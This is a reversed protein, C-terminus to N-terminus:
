KEAGCEIRWVRGAQAGDLCVATLARGWVCGSDLSLYNEHRMFGLSSWHGFVIRWNKCQMHPHAFWPLLAPPQSGPAGKATFNLGGRRTCFRMRTLANTIFRAREWKHKVSQWRAPHRGYMRRLFNKWEAGRLLSEVEAALHAVQKRRWGPYIGAHVMLTKLRSDFHALPRRRLWDLLEDRDPASLINQMTDAARMKRAGTSVALLNLDHNGLVCVASEGLSRVLRLTELSHPGRNVMDGSLWLSDRAPAFDVSELMRELPAVCGQVDGVAYVAM